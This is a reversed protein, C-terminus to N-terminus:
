CLSNIFYRPFFFFSNQWIKSASFVFFKCINSFREFSIFGLEWLLLCLLVCYYQINLPVRELKIQLFVLIKFDSAREAFKMWTQFLSNGELSKKWPMIPSNSTKNEEWGKVREMPWVFRNAQYHLSRWAYSICSLM